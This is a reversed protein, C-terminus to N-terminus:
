KMLELAKDMQPDQQNKINDATLDVKVDPDLGIKDIGRDNPTFWKAITVKLESNDKMENLEQVSGKGFTKEGVLTAIKYDQLAGALIESASASGGNVLVVTKIGKLRPTGEAKYDTDAQGFGKEKVVVKGNDIWDSGLAIATPLYGGPDNRLDIIVGQYNQSLIKDIAQNFLGETDDGFRSVKVVAIKKGSVTKDSFEVSKIVINDRTITIDQSGSSGKHTITLKVQTGAKGRIKSVAQDTTMGITNTGDIATIIDGALLGAKEAPTGSIPAVIVIQENKIGIEAGIGEFTGKLEDAFQKAQTPDFFVTYPDGAAAVMGSVAGYMLKQQDLPRDVFKSNLKNLADWLLSYDATNNPVNGQSIEVKGSKIKVRGEGSAFGLGFIAVFLVGVIVYVRIKSPSLNLKAEEQQQEM